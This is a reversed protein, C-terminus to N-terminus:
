IWQSLLWDIRGTALYVVLSALWGIFVMALAIGTAHPLRLYLRAVWRWWCFLIAAFMLLAAEDRARVWALFYPTRTAIAWPNPWGAKWYSLANVFVVIPLAGFPVSLLYVIPRILHRASVGIRRMSARVLILSAATLAAWLAIFPSTTEDVLSATFAISAFHDFDPLYYTDYPWIFADIASDIPTVRFALWENGRWQGINWVM